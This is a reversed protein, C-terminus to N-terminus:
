RAAHEELISKFKLAMGNTYFKGLDNPIVWVLFNAFKSPYLPAREAEPVLKFSISKGMKEGTVTAIPMPLKMLQLLDNHSKIGLEDFKTRQVLSNQLKERRAKEAEEAFAKTAESAKKAEEEPLVVASAAAEDGVGSKTLPMPWLLALEIQESLLGADVGNIHDPGLLQPM